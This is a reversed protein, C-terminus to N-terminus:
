VERGLETQYATVLTNMEGLESDTLGLGFYILSTVSGYGYNTYGNAALVWLNKTTSPDAASAATITTISTANHKYSLESSQTRSAQHFGTLPNPATINTGSLADNIMVYLTGPTGGSKYFTFSTNGSYVGFPFQQNVTWGDQTYVGMSADDRGLGLASPTVGTDGHGTGSNAGDVGDSTHTVGTTWTIQYQTPDKLNYSHSTDTGGVFPYIIKMKDWIGDNKLGVVLNNIATQQTAETISAADIFAQADSDTSAGAPILPVGRTGAGRLISPTFTTTAM